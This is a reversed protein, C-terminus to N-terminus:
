LVSILLTLEPPIALCIYEPTIAYVAQHARKAASVGLSGFSWETRTASGLNFTEALRMLLFFM